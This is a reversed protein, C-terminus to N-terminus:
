NRIKSATDGNTEQPRSQQEIYSGIERRIAMKDWLNAVDCSQARLGVRSIFDMTSDSEFTGTGLWLYVIKTHSYIERMQTIQWSKELDNSQEICIADIWLWSEVGDRRFQRLAEHLNQTIKFECGNVNIEVPDKTTGWTYSVAAYSSNDNLSVHQLELSILEGDDVLGAAAGAFRLVRIERAGQSLPSHNFM